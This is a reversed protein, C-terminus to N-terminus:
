CYSVNKSYCYYELVQHVDEYLNLNDKLYKTRVIDKNIADTYLKQKLRLAKLKFEKADEEVEPSLLIKKVYGVTKYNFPLSHEDM